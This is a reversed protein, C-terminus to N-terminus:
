VVVNGVGDRGSTVLHVSKTGWLTKFVAENIWHSIEYVYIKKKWKTELM